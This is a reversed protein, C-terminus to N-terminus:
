KLLVRSLLYRTKVSKPSNFISILRIFKKDFDNSDFSKPVTFNLSKTKEFGEKDSVSILVDASKIISPVTKDLWDRLLEKFPTKVSNVIPSLNNLFM